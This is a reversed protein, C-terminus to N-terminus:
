EPLADQEALQVSALPSCHGETAAIAACDEPRPQRCSCRNCFGSRCQWPRPCPQLPTELQAPIARRDASVSCRVASALACDFQLWPNFRPINHFTGIQVPPYAPAPTRSCSFKRGRAKGANKGLAKLRCQPAPGPRRGVRHQRRRLPPPRQRAPPRFQQCFPLQCKSSPLPLQVTTELGVMTATCIADCASSPLGGVHHRIERGLSKGACRCFMAPGFLAKRGSPRM